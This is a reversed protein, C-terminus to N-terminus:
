AIPVVIVDSRPTRRPRRRRRGCAGSARRPAAAGRRRPAAAASRSIRSCRSCSSASASRAAACRPARHALVDLPDHGADGRLRRARAPSRRTTAADSAARRRRASRVSAADDMRGFREPPRAAELPGIGPRHWLTPMRSRSGHRSGRRGQALQRVELPQELGPAIRATKWGITRRDRGRASRSRPGRASGRRRRGPRSAARRSARRRRRRRGAGQGRPRRSPPSPWPRRRRGRAAQQEEVDAGVREAVGPRNASASRSGDRSTISIVSCRRPGAVVGRM